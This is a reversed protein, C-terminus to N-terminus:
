GNSKCYLQLCKQVNRVEEVNAICFILIDDVFLFHSISSSLWSLKVGMSNRNARGNIFCELLLEAMLIFLFPSLTDGQRLGKEMPIKEFISGNLLFEMSVSSICNLVLKVFKNSFGLMILIRTIVVWDMRDYVKQMDVKIGVIGKLGKKHKISHVVESAM